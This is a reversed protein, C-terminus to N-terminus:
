EVVQGHGAMCARYLEFETSSYTTEPYRQALVSCTHIAAARSGDVRVQAQSAAAPALMTAGVLMTAIYHKLM